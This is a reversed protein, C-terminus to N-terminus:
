RETVKTGPERNTTKKTPGERGERYVHLSGTFHDCHTAITPPRRPVPTGVDTQGLPVLVGDRADPDATKSTVLRRTDALTLVSVHTGGQYLGDEPTHRVTPGTALPTLSDTTYGHPESGRRGRAEPTSPVTGWPEVVTSRVPTPRTVVLGGKVRGLTITTTPGESEGRPGRKTM